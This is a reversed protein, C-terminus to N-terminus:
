VEEEEEPSLSAFLQKTTDHLDLDIASCAAIASVKQIPIGPSKHASLIIISNNNQPLQKGRNDGVV